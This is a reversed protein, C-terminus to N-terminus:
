VPQESKKRVTQLEKLLSSLDDPRNESSYACLDLILNLVEPSIQDQLMLSAMEHMKKVREEVSEYATLTKFLEQGLLMYLMLVGLSFRDSAATHEQNLLQEPALFLPNGALLAFAQPQNNERSNMRTLGADVLIVDHNKDFFINEPHLNAHVQNQAHYRNLQHQIKSLLLLSQQLPVAGMRLVLDQLSVAKLWPRQLLTFGTQVEALQYDALAAPDVCAAAFEPWAEAKFRLTPFVRALFKEGSETNQIQFTMKQHRQPLTKLQTAGPFRLQLWDSPAEFPSKASESSAKNKAKKSAAESKNPENAYADLQVPQSITLGDVDLALIEERQKVLWLELLKFTMNNRGSICSIVQTDCRLSCEIFDDYQVVESVFDSLGFSSQLKLGTENPTLFSNTNYDYTWLRTQSIGDYVSLYRLEPLSHRFAQLQPLPSM